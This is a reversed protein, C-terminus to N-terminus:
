LHTKSSPLLSGQKDSRFFPDRTLEGLYAAISVIVCALYLFFPGQMHVMTLPKIIGEANLTVEEEETALMRRQKRGDRRVDDM